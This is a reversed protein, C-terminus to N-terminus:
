GDLKMGKTFIDVCFEMVNVKGIHSITDSERDYHVPGNMIGITRDPRRYIIEFFDHFSSLDESSRYHVLIVNEAPIPDLKNGQRLMEQHVSDLLTETSPFKRKIANRRERHESYVVPRITNM